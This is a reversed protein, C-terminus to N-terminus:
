LIQKLIQSLATSVKASQEKEMKPRLPLAGIDPYDSDHELVDGPYLIYASKVIPRLRPDNRNKLAITDRYERMKNLDEDLFTVEDGVKESRYKADFILVSRTQNFERLEMSLDPTRQRQGKSVLGEIVRTAPEYVPEYRILIKRDGKLLEVAASRDVEFQFLDDRVTFFGNSSIIQYGVKRLITMAANAVIFVSWTEYIESLRRISLEAVYRDADLNVGLEKQFRLFIRYFRNYYPHKQLIQSPQQRQGGMQVNKLFAESGWAMCQQLLDHCDLSVEELIQIKEAEDNEWGQLQKIRESEKRKRIEAKAKEQISILRPLLQRWLFHKLLRNEYTDHTLTHEEVSWLQPLVMAMTGSSIGRPLQIFPGPIPVVESSFRKVQHIFQAQTQNTLQSHPNRRIHSMVDALEPFVAKILKYERLASSTYSRNHPTLRESSPSQLQFLLDESIAQIDGLMQEYREYSMRSPLVRVVTTETQRNPVIITFHYLGAFSKPRWYWSGYRETDLQEDDVWIELDDPAYNTVRIFNREAEKAGVQLNDDDSHFSLPQGNITLWNDAGSVPIAM